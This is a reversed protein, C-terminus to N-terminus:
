YANAITKKLKRGVVHIESPISVFPLFKNPLNRFEVDCRIMALNCKKFAQVFWRVGFFNKHGSVKAAGYRHPCQIEVYGGAKTVRVMEKLM